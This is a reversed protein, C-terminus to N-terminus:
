RVRLANLIVAADLAEQMVAGAAPTIVGFSAIVRFATQVLRHLSL